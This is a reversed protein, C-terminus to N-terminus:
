PASPMPEALLSRILAELKGNEEPDFGVSVERVVGRKDVLFMTPLASVGYVGSTDARPDSAIPYRMDTREKFLAAEEASDTTIGVVSLGQAGYRSQWGSLIPSVIRCPGCWSAWFDILVVKGRLASLAAPFGSVPELGVWAPAPSGVHDMRLMADPAPFDGLVITLQDDKGGRSLSLAVSEGPAHAGVARIFERANAVAAGDVRRILDNSHIGAREAPSGRVVHDVKVGLSAPAPSAPAGGAQTAPGMAVGLWGRAHPAVSPPVDAAGRTAVSVTALAALVSLM